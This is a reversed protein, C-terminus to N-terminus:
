YWLYASSFSGLKKKELVVLDYFILMVFCDISLFLITFTQLPLLLVFLNKLQAALSLRAAASAPLTKAQYFM